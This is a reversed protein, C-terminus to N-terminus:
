KLFEVEILSNIITIQDGHKLEETKVAKGNLKVLDPHNTKFRIGTTTPIVEFCPDPANPEYIPLDLSNPGAKRPGYGLTWLTEAQLGRIFILNVPPNMPVVVKDKNKVKEANQAAWDKLRDSWTRREVEPEPDNLVISTAQEKQFSTVEAVGLEELIEPASSESPPSPDPQASVQTEETEPPAQSRPKTSTQEEEEAEPDKEVQFCNDGIYFEIGPELILVKVREGDFRIGNKSELDTLVFQGEQFEVRAHLSSVKPDELKIHGKTRGLQLGTFIEYKDGALPGQTIHLLLAM